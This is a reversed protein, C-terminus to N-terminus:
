SPTEDQSKKFSEIERVPQNPKAYSLRALPELSHYEDLGTVAVSGAAKLDVSGDNRILDKDTFLSIIEGIVFHTGNLPIDMIEIVKLGLQIRSENVFPAPISDTFRPTLGCATFESQDREYRASTQHAKKFIDTNVHNITYFGTAKLNMLTHRPSAESHPRIVMGLLPPTAGLHVVSSVMSLNTKGEQSQTGVLNASKAGSLSNILRAWQRKDFGQKESSTIKIM